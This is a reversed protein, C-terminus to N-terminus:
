TLRRRLTAITGRGVVTEHTLLLVDRDGLARIGANMGAAYGNNYALEIISPALHPFADRLSEVSGDRSANDIIRIHEPQVGEALVAEITASVGPWHRYHLIVVGFGSM